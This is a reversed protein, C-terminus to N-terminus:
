STKENRKYQLNAIFTILIVQQVEISPVNRIIHFLQETKVKAVTHLTCNIFLNGLLNKTIGFTERDSDTLHIRTERM